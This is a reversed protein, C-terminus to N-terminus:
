FTQPDFDARNGSGPSHCYACNIDLYSRAKEDLSAGADDMAAVTLFNATEADNINTNLIGLSSLTVM